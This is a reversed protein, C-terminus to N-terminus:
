RPAWESSRAGVTSKGRRSITSFFRSLSTGSWGSTAASRHSRVSTCNAAVGEAAFEGGIETLQGGISDAPWEASM